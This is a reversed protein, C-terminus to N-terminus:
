LVNAIDAMQEAQLSHFYSSITNISRGLFLSLQAPPINKNLLKMIVSHRAIYFTLKQTDIPESKKDKIIVPNIENDIIKRIYRMQTALFNKLRNDRFHQTKDACDEYYPLFYKGDNKLYYGFMDEVFGLYELMIKYRMKTKHRKGEILLYKRDSTSRNNGKVTKFSIQSQKLNFLDVPSLATKLMLCFFVLGNFGAFETDFNRIKLCTYKIIQFMQEENLYYDRQQFKYPIHKEIHFGLARAKRLHLTITSEASGKQEFYECFKNYDYDDISEFCNNFHYIFAKWSRRTIDTMRNNNTYEEVMKEITKKDDVKQSLIVDFDTCGDDIKRQCPLILQQLTDNLAKKKFRQTKKDFGSSSIGLSKEKSKGQFTVRLSLTGNHEVVRLKPTTTKPM